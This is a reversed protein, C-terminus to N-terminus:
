HNRFKNLLDNLLRCEDESLGPLKETYNDLEIEELLQQGKESLEVGVLRRDYEDPKKQALGKSVLRSVMRSTDANQFLLREKIYSTSVPRGAGRIIRLVNYQTNTLDFEALFRDIICSLENGTYIINLIARVAENRIPKTQKIASELTEM